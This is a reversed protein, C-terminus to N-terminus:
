RHHNLPSYEREVKRTSFCARKGFIVKEGVNRFLITTGPAAEILSRSMFAFMMLPETNM